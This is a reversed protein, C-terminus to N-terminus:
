YSQLTSEQAENEHRVVNRRNECRLNSPEVNEFISEEISGLNLCNFILSITMIVKIVPTTEFLFYKHHVYKKESVLMLSSNM